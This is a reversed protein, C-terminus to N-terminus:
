TSPRRDVLFSVNKLRTSFASLLEASRARTFIIYLIIQCYNDLILIANGSWVTVNTELPLTNKSSSYETANFQKTSVTTVSSQKISMVTSYLVM